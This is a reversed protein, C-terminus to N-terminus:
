GEATCYLLLTSGDAMAVGALAEEADEPCYFPDLTGFETSGCLIERDYLVGDRPLAAIEDATLGDARYLGPARGLCDKAWCVGFGPGLTFCSGGTPAYPWADGSQISGDTWSDDYATSLESVHVSEPALTAHATAYPETPAEGA